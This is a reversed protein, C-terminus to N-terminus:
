DDGDRPGQSYARDGKGTHRHTTGANGVGCGPGSSNGGNGGEGRYSLPHHVTPPTCPGLLVTGDDAIRTPLTTASRGYRANLASTGLNEIM